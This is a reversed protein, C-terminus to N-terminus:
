SISQRGYKFRKIFLIGACEAVLHPKKPICAFCVKVNFLFVIDGKKVQRPLDEKKPKFLLAKIKDTNTPDVLELTVKYDANL